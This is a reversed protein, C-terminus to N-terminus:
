EPVAACPVAVWCTACYATEWDPACFFKCGRGYPEPYLECRCTFSTCYIDEFDCPLTTYLPLPRSVAMEIAVGGVFAVAFLAAYVILRKVICREVSIICGGSATRGRDRDHLSLSM